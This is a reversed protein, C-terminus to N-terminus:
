HLRRSIAGAGGRIRIRFGFRAPRRALDPGPFDVGLWILGGAFRVAPCRPAPTEPASGPFGGGPKPRRFLGRRLGWLFCVCWLPCSGPGLPPVLGPRPALVHARTCRHHGKTFAYAHTLLSTFVIGLLLGGKVWCGKLWACPEWGASSKLWYATILVQVEFNCCKRGSNNPM